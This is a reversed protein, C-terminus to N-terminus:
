PLTFLLKTTGLLAPDAGDYDMELPGAGDYNMELPGVPRITRELLSGFGVFSCFTNSSM